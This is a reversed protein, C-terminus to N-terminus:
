GVDNTRFVGKQEAETAETFTEYPFKIYDKEKILRTYHHPLICGERTFLAATTFGNSSWENLTEGTDAIDDVITLNRFHEINFHGLVDLRTPPETVLECGQYSLLTAVLTGGRPIGYVRRGKLIRSMKLVSNMVEDWTLIIM